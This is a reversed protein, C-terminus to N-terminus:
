AKNAGHAFTYQSKSPNSSTLRPANSLSQFFDSFLKNFGTSQFSFQVSYVYKSIPTNTTQFNGHYNSRNFPWTMLIPMKHCTNQFQPLRERHKIKTQRKVYRDCNWNRNFRNSDNIFFFVIPSFWIYTWCLYTHLFGFITCLNHLVGHTMTAFDDRIIWQMRCRLKSQSFDDWRSVGLRQSIM